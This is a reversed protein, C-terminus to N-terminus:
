KYTGVVKNFKDSWVGLKKAYAKYTNRNYEKGDKAMADYVKQRNDKASSVVVYDNKKATTAKSNGRGKTTKPTNGSLAELIKDMKANLNSMENELNEIRQTNTLKSM